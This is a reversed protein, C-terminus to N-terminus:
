MNKVDDIEQVTVTTPPTTVSSQQNLTSLMPGLLSTLNSLDPGGNEGGQSTMSSMMSNLMNMPNSQGEQAEGNNMDIGGISSCMKQVTGMLKGLDLSGDQIGNNM